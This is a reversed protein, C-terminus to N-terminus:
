SEPLYVTASMGLKIDADPTFSVRIEYNSINQKQEGLGSISEITGEYTKDPFSDFIINVKDGQAIRALDIEDVSAIVRMDTPAYISTLLQGKQINQGVSVTIDGLVGSQTARIVNSKIDPDISGTVTELLLDGQEIQQGESVHVALVSGPSNIPIPNSRVATGRGVRDVAQYDEERYLNIPEGAKFDGTELQVVYRNGDISIVVGSGTIKINDRSRVYLIEGIHIIKNEARDYAGSISANVIIMNEPEIYCLAGYRSQVLEANDGPAAQIGRVTGSYPAYVKVTDITFLVDNKAVQDGRRVDFALLTGSFPATVPYIHIAEAMGTVTKPIPSNTQLDPEQKMAPETEQACGVLLTFVVLTIVIAGIKKKM